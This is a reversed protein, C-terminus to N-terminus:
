AAGRLPTPKSSNNPMKEAGRVYSIAGAVLGVLSAIFAGGSLVRVFSVTSPSELAAGLGHFGNSYLLVGVIALQLLAVTIAGLALWCLPRRGRLVALLTPVAGAPFVALFLTALLPGIEM